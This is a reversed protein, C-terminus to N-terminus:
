QSVIPRAISTQWITTAGLRNRWPRVKAAMAELEDVPVASILTHIVSKHVSVDGMAIEIAALIARRMTSSDTRKVLPAM